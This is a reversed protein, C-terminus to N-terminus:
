NKCLSLKLVGSALNLVFLKHLVFNDGSTYVNDMDYMGRGCNGM